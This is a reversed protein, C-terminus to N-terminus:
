QTHLTCIDFLTEFIACMLMDLMEDFIISHKRFGIKIQKCEIASDTNFKNCPITNNRNENSEIRIKNAIEGGSKM